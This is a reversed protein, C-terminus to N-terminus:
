TTRKDTVNLNSTLNLKLAGVIAKSIESQLEFVNDLRRGYREAWELRNTHTDTLQASIRVHNGSKRVSGELLYRVGIEQSIQAASMQAGRYIQSSSKAAVSLGPVDSLDTLIDETMGDAFYNQEADGSMNVFPLVAISPTEDM